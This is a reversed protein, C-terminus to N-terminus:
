MSPAETIEFGDNEIERISYGHEKSLHMGTVYLRLELESSEKIALLLPRLYGYEARTGTVVGVRRRM